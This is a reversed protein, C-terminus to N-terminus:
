GDEGELKINRAEFGVKTEYLDFVIKQGAKLTKFGPKLIQTYHCFVEKDGDETKAFGYGKSDSFWKVTAIM